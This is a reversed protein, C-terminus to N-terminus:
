CLRLHGDVAKLRENAFLGVEHLLKGFDLM